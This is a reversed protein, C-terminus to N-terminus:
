SCLPRSLLVLRCQRRVGKQVHGEPIDPDSSCSQPPVLDKKDTADPLDDRVLAPGQVRALTPHFHFTPSQGGCVPHEVQLDESGSAILTRRCRGVVLHSPIHIKGNVCCNLPDIGGHHSCCGRDSETCAAVTIPPSTPPTTGGTGDTSGNCACGPAILCTRSSDICGDGCANGTTCVPCVGGCRDPCVPCVGNVALPMPPPLSPLTNPPPTLASQTGPTDQGEDGGDNACSVLLLMSCILGLLVGWPHWTSYRM